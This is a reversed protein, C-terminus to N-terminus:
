ASWQLVPIYFVIYAKRYEFTEIIISHLTSEIFSYFQSM